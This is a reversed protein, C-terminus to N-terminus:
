LNLQEPPVNSCLYIFKAYISLNVSLNSCFSENRQIFGEITERTMGRAKIKAEVLQTVDPLQIPGIETGMDRFVFVQGVEGFVAFSSGSICCGYARGPIAFTVQQGKTDILRIQGSWTLLLLHDHGNQYLDIKGIARIMRQLDISWLQKQTERNILDVVGDVSAVLQLSQNQYYPSKIDGLLYIPCQTRAVKEVVFRKFSQWDTEAKVIKGDPLGVYLSNKEAVVISEIEQPFDCQSLSTLSREENCTTTASFLHVRRDRTGFIVRFDAEHRRFTIVSINYPVTFTCTPQDLTDVFM